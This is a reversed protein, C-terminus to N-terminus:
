PRAPPAPSTVGAQPAQGARTVTRVIGQPAGNLTLFIRGLYEGAVGLMVLQVGALLLIVALTSAWGQPTAGFLAEALVLLVGLFGLASMALGFFTAVRLPLISFNLAMALVVRMLRKFTYNSEGEARASHAVQLREIRQTTQMILGDIFPYPGQYRTIEKAIFASMCRFSSLYLGKPKDLLQDALWNQAQSGLNRWWAHEKREYWTYVVDAGTSRAYDFLRQVEMPPNQLDDDINIIFAGRTHRLGTMVAQHEGFNRSHEIVTVPVTAATAAAHCAALSDDPSGDYVLVVEMGGAKAIPLGCLAEVVRGITRAGNYVPIVVSLDPTPTPDTL